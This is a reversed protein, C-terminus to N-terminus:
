GHLAARLANEGGMGAAQRPRRFHHFQQQGLLFIGAGFRGLERGRHARRDGVHHPFLDGAPEVDDVVPLLAAGVVGGVHLIAERAEVARARRREPGALGVEGLERRHEGVEGRRELMARRARTGDGPLIEGRELGVDRPRLLRHRAGLRAFPEHGRRRGTLDRAIQLVLVIGRVFGIKIRQGLHHRPFVARDDIGAEHQLDVAGVQREAAVHHERM